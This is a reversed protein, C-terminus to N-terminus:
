TFVKSLVRARLSWTEKSSFFYSEGMPWLGPTKLLDRHLTLVTTADPPFQHSNKPVTVGIFIETCYCSIAHLAKFDGYLLLM